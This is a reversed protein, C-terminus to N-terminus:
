AAADLELVFTALPLSEAEPHLRVVALGAVAVASGDRESPKRRSMWEHSAQTTAAM